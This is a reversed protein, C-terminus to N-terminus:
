SCTTMYSDEQGWAAVSAWWLDPDFVHDQSHPVTDADPTQAACDYFLDPDTLDLYEVREPAIPIEPFEAALSGKGGYDGAAPAPQGGDWRHDRPSDWGNSAPQHFCISHQGVQVTGSVRSKNFIGQHPSSCTLLTLRKAFREQGLVKRVKKRPRERQENCSSPRAEGASNATECPATDLGQLPCVLKSQQSVYYEVLGLSGKRDLWEEVPGKRKVHLASVDLDNEDSM